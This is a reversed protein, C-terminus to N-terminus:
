TPLTSQQVQRDVSMQRRIARDACMREVLSVSFVPVKGTKKRKSAIVIDYAVCVEGLTLTKIPKNLKALEVTLMFLIPANMGHDGFFNNLNEHLEIALNNFDLGAKQQTM